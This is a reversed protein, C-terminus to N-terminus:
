KIPGVAPYKKPKRAAVIKIALNILYALPFIKIIVPIKQKALIRSKNHPTTQSLIDNCRVQAFDSKKPKTGKRGPSIALDAKAANKNQFSLGRIFDIRYIDPSYSLILLCIFFMANLSPMSKDIENEKHINAFLIPIFGCCAREIAMNEIDIKPVKNKQSKRRLKAKTPVATSRIVLVISISCRSINEERSTISNRIPM